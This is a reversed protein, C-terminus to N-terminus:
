SRTTTTTPRRSRSIGAFPTNNWQQFAADPVLAIRKGRRTSADENNGGIKAASEPDTLDLVAFKDDSAGANNQGAFAGNQLAANNPDAVTMLYTSLTNNVTRRRIAFDKAVVVSALTSVKRPKFTTITLRMTSLANGSADKIGNGMGPELLTGLADNGVLTLRYDTGLKLAAFPVFTAVRNGSSIRVEGLM